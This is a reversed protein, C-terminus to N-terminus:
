KYVAFHQMVVWLGMLGLLFVAAGGLLLALM